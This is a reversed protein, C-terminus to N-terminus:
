AYTTYGLQKLTDELYGDLEEPQITYPVEILRIGLEECRQKKFRDRKIQSLFDDYTRHFYPTYNYHQQGNVEVGLGLDQNYLDLELNRGTEYKLFEPRVKVFSCRLKNELITKCLAECRSTKSYTRNSSYKYNRIPRLLGSIMDQRTYGTSTNKNYREYLYCILNICISIIVLIEWAYRKLITM